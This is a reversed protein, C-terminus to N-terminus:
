HFSKPKKAVKRNATKELAETVDALRQLIDPSRASLEDPVEAMHALADGVDSTRGEQFRENLLRTLQELSARYSAQSMRRSIWASGGLCILITLIVFIGSCWNRMWRIDRSEGVMWGWLMWATFLALFVAFLIM